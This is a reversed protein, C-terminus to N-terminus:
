TKALSYKQKLIIQTAAITRFYKKNIQQQDLTINATLFKDDLSLILILFKLSYPTNYGSSKFSNVFQKEFAASPRFELQM